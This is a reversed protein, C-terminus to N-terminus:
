RFCRVDKSLSICFRDCLMEMEHLKMKPKRSRWSSLGCPCHHSHFTARMPFVATFKPRQERATTKGAGNPGVLAYIAGEPVNLNLGDLAVLDKFKKSLNETRIACTM